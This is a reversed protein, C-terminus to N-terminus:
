NLCRSLKLCAFEIKGQTRIIINKKYNRKTTFIRSNLQEFVLNKQFNSKILKTLNLSKPVIATENTDLQWEIQDRSFKNLEALQINLPTRLLPIVFALEKKIVYKITRLGGLLGFASNTWFNHQINDSFERSQNNANEHLAIYSISGSPTTTRVVLTKSFEAKTVDVNLNPLGYTSLSELGDNFSVHHFGSQAVNKLLGNMIASKIGADDTMEYEDRIGFLKMIDVILCELQKETIYVSDSQAFLREVMGFTYMQKPTLLFVQEIASKVRTNKEFTCLIDFEENEAMYIESCTREATRYDARFGVRLPFENLYSVSGKLEVPSPGCALSLSCEIKDPVLKLINAFKEADHGFMSNVKKLLIEKQDGTLIDILIYFGTRTMEFRTTSLDPNSSKVLDVAIPYGISYWKDHGQGLGEIISVLGSRNYEAILNIDGFIVVESSSVYRGPSVSLFFMLILSQCLRPNMTKSYDIDVIVVVVVFFM